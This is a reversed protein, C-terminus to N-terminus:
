EGGNPNKYGSVNLGTSTGAGAALGIYYYFQQSINFMEFTQGAVSMIQSAAAVGGLGYLYPQGTAASSLYATASYSGGGNSSVALTQVQLSFSLANPPVFASLSVATPASATGSSIAVIASTYLTRSGFFSVDSLTGTGLRVAGIYAQAVYGSPLTPATASASALTSVTAGNSIFWFHVWSNNGFAGAQDRGNAAPGATGINCVVPGVALALISAGSTPNRMLVEAASFTATTFGAGVTNGTLGKVRSGMALQSLTAAHNPLSGPGVLLPVSSNGGLANLNTGDGWVTQMGGGQSIIVGSGAATKATITFAGTTNNVVLWEELLTPFIIQVNGTLTGALTIIPKSYQPATLTVNANTLGTVPTIGYSNVPAWNAGGTDPNTSNNDALSLWYGDGTASLVFAGKPYGGVTAAFAADFPFGGGACQWQQVGTIAYGLGNFDQGYPNIGGSAAPQMTVAPFGVDFSAQGPQTIGGATLPITNRTGSPGTPASAAFIAAIKAPITSLQM